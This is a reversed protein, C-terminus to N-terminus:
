KLVWGHKEQNEKGCKSKVFRNFLGTQSVALIEPVFFTEM